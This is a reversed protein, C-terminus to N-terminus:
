KHKGWYSPHWAHAVVHLKKQQSPTEYVNKMPQGPALIRWIEDEWTAPIVPAHWWAWSDVSRWRNCLHWSVLACEQKSRTQFSDLSLRMPTPLKQKQKQSTYLHLELGHLLDRSSWWVEKGVLEMQM